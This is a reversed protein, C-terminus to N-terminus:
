TSPCGGLKLSIQVWFTDSGIQFPVIVCPAGNKTSVSHLPGVVVSPVSIRFNVDLDAMAAKAGGAVMNAIEGVADVLRHDREAVSEGTMAEYVRGALGFPFSLVVAGAAEGALGIIGSIDSLAQFTGKIFPVGRTVEIGAMTKMAHFTSAIFPNVLRADM